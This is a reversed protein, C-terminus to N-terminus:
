KLAEIIQAKTSRTTVKVGQHKAVDLLQAKTLGSYDEAPKEAVAENIIDVTSPANGLFKKALHYTVFGGVIVLLLIDM